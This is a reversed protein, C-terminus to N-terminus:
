LGWGIPSGWCWWGRGGWPNPPTHPQTPQWAHVWLYELLHPQGHRDRYCSTFGVTGVSAAQSFHQGGLPLLRGGIMPAPLVLVSM